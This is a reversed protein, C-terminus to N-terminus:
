ITEKMAPIRVAVEHVAVRLEAIQLALADLTPRSQLETNLTRLSVTEERARSVDEMLRDVKEAMADREERWAKASGESAAAQARLKGLVLFGAFLIALAAVDLLVRVANPVGAAVESFLVGIALLPAAVLKAEGIM